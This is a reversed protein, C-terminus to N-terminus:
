KRIRISQPVAGTVTDAVYIQDNESLGEYLPLTLARAFVCDTAPFDGNQYGYRTRFYRTMPVHWTGVATEVGDAKWAAILAAREPAADEPLLTVYSQYVHLSDPAVFPTKLSSGQLLADYRSAGRRRADIVRNLKGM